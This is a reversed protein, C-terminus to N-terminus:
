IAITEIVKDNLIIQLTQGNIESRITDTANVQISRSIIKQADSDYVYFLNNQDTINFFRGTYTLNKYGNPFLNTGEYSKAYYLNDNKTIISKGDYTVIMEKIDTVFSSNDNGILSWLNDKSVIYKESAIKEDKKDNILGIFDYEFPISVSSGNESLTIVGWKNSTNQVIFQNNEIGIGYNKVARYRTVRKQNQLDYLIIEQIENESPADVLFVYRKAVLSIKSLEEEKYSLIPYPEDDYTTTAYDCIGDKNECSYTGILNDGDYFYLSGEYLFDHNPNELTPVAPNPKPTSTEKKDQMKLVMGTVGLPLTVVLLIIIAVLVSKKNKVKM